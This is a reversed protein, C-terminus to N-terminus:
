QDLDQDTRIQGHQAMLARAVRSRHERTTGLRLVWSAVRRYWLQLDFEEMFGIGGHIQQSLRCIPLCRENVFAKAQSAKISAPEGASLAWLAESVLLDAGDLWILADACAHRISQFSGIPHGFAVRQKSYDVALQLDKRTAGVIQACLMIVAVDTLYRVPCGYDATPSLVAEPDVIVQDFRVLAQGDKAIPLLPTCSIGPSDSPLLVLVAAGDPRRASLLVQAADPFADVFTKEGTLLYRGDARPALTAAPPAYLAGQGEQLALAVTMGSVFQPLSRERLGATGFRSIAAAASVTNGLPVPALHRGVEGLLLGATALPDGLGGFEPAITAGPWGLETMWQWLERDVSWHRHEAARVRSPPCKERLFQRAVSQLESEDATLLATV